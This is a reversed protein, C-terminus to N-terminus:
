TQDTLCKRLQQESLTIPDNMQNPGAATFPM